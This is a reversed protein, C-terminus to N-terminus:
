LSKEDLILPKLDIKNIKERIESEPYLREGKKWCDILWILEDVREIHVRPVRERRINQKKGTLFESLENWNIM